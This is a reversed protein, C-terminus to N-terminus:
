RFILTGGSNAIIPSQTLYIIAGNVGSIRSTPVKKIEKARITSFARSLGNVCLAMQALVSGTSVGSGHFYTCRAGKTALFHCRSCGMAGPFWPSISFSHPSLGHVM